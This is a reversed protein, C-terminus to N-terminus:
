YIVTVPLVGHLAPVAIRGLALRDVAIGGARDRGGTRQWREKGGWGDRRESFTSWFASHRHGTVQQSVTGAAGAAGGGGGVKVSSLTVGRFSAGDREVRVAGM